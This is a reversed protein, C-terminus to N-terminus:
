EQERRRYAAPALGTQAKCARTLHSQDTYGARQAIEAIPMATASLRQLAWEVRLARAYEGVSLHFHRRFTRALHWPTVGVTAAVATLDLHDRFHAHVVDRAQLLWRPVESERRRRMSGRVARTMMLMVLSDMALPSLSDPKAVEASVRRADQAIAPDRIDLVEDLLRGFPALLEHRDPHPQTVLVRAGSKGVHNAHREERPETWTTKPICEIRQRGIETEFSGELMVAVISRDHTHPELVSHPPFWAETIRFMGTEVIRSRPSGMTVPEHTQRM